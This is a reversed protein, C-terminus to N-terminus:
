RRSHLVSLAHCRCFFTTTSNSGLSSAPVMTHGTQGSYLRHFPMFQFPNEAAALLVKTPQCRM